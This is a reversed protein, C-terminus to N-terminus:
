VSLINVVIPFSVPRPKKGQITEIWIVLALLLLVNEQMLDGVAMELALLDVELVLAVVVVVRELTSRM